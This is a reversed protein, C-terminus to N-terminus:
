YLPLIDLTYFKIQQNVTDIISFKPKNIGARQYALSPNVVIYRYEQAISVCGNNDIFCNESDIGMGNKYRFVATIHAHGVCIYQFYCDDFVNWARVSDKITELKNRPSAHTFQWVDVAITKPLKELWQQNEKKITCDYIEDHNGKVTKIQNYKLLEICEDNQEGGDIVDGLCVIEDIGIEELLNIAQKLAVFYGHIDGIVGIKM